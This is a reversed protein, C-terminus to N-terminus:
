EGLEENWMGYFGGGITELVNGDEIDEESPEVGNWRSVTIVTGESEISVNQQTYRIGEKAIEKAEDLDNVEVEETIGTHYNITYKEM